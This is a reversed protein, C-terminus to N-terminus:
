SCPAEPDGRLKLFLWYLLMGPTAGIFFVIFWLIGWRSGGPPASIAPAVLYLYLATGTLGGLLGPVLALVRRGPGAFLSFAASTGLAGIVFLKLEAFEGYLSRYDLYAAIPAGVFLAAVVMGAAYDWYLPERYKSV